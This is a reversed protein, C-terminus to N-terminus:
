MLYVWDEQLPLTTIEVDEEGVYCDTELRVGIGEQPLYVGPEVTFGIGPVLQRYDHTEVNDLNVGNGHVDVGLSHGTRHLFFPAWGADAIVRRAADDLEYGRVPRHNRVRERALAIVADRASRVVRFVRQLREPVREGAFAMWTIDAYVADERAERAWLDLLLLSGPRIARNEAENPVYHPDAAHEDVAVIPPHDTVLENERFLRLILRQVDLETPPTDAHLRERVYAFAMDKIALLHRAARLHTAKQEPTWVAEAIQVLDASSVVDVGLSRVLEVTGADVRSVTPIAAGPSVEMAVRRADELLARLGELWSSWSIYTLPSTLPLGGVEIRHVLWRPSGEAPIFCAWRRTLIADEPLRVVRRAIPNQNQFDYLLWGDLRADQLTQQIAKLRPIM